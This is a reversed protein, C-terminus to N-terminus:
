YGDAQGRKRWYDSVAHIIGSVPNIYIGNMTSAPAISKVTHGRKELENRVTEPALMELYAVDPLLQHHIRPARVVDLLPMGYELKRVIAQFVSTLIKSGGAAGIVFEPWQTTLDTIVTPVCSSLPRKFPAIYNYISPELDFANRTGPTSFDDMENNLVIGTVPDVVLSGFLLNVTTTMSVAMGDADLVSFHATGHPDKGEYAPSYFQWPHTNDDSINTRIMDAWKPDLIEKILASNDIDVPDGLQSRGAGMWKMTEVLRQTAVGEFDSPAQMPKEFGGLVNLGNILIPGSAPNPATAVERGRFLATIAPGVEVDYDAFDELTLIGGTSKVTRVLNPAIPGEPDYFVAASGNRAILDLTHALNPRFARAGPTLPLDQEDFLWDFMERMERHEHDSVAAIIGPVAVALGGFKSLLPNSKYMDKHAYRGAKERFNFATANEDGAPKVIMFGGGGIGSSFSNISGICLATTISADVASGGRKLIETGLTSCAPVDCAVAGHKATVLHKKDDDKDAAALYPLFLHTRDSVVGRHSTVRGDHCGRFSSTFHSFVGGYILGILMLSAIALHIGRALMRHTKSKLELPAQPQPKSHSTSDTAAYIPLLAQKEDAM